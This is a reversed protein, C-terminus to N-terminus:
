KKEFVVTIFSGHIGSSIKKFIAHPLAIAAAAAIKLWETKTHERKLSKVNAINRARYYAYVVVRGQGTYNVSVFKLPFLKELSRYVNVNWLGMHHPPMNLPTYVDYGLFFPENSPTALVLKGGPKLLKVCSDLFSQVDYVHELVQFATVVDYTGAAYQVHKEVLENKVDLGLAICRQCSNANLELGHVSAKEKARLLFTGESCGIDLVKDGQKVLDYAIQFEDKWSLESKEVSGPSYLDEYFKGDGEVGPPHYFKYGTERCKYVYINSKGTFFRSVDISFQKRYVDTILSVPITLYPYASNTKTLPCIIANNTTMTNEKIENDYKKLGFKKGFLKSKM